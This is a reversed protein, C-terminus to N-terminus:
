LLVGLFPLSQVHFCQIYFAFELELNPVDGQPIDFGIFNKQFDTGAAEAARFNENSLVGLFPLGDAMLNGSTYLLCVAIKM